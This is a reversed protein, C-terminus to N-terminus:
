EVPHLGQRILEDRALLLAGLHQARKAEGTELRRGVLRKAASSSVEAFVDGSAPLCDHDGLNNKPVTAPDGNIVGIKSGDQRM